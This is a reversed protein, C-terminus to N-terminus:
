VIRIRQEGRAEKVGPGKLPMMGVMAVQPGGGIPCGESWKVLFPMLHSFYLIMRCVGGHHLLKKADLGLM